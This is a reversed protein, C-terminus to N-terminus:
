TYPQQSNESIRFGFIDRTGPICLFCFVTNLNSQCYQNSWILATTIHKTTGSHPAWVRLRWVLWEPDTHVPGNRRITAWGLSVRVVGPSHSLRPLRTTAQVLRGCGPRSTVVKAPPQMRNPDTARSVYVCLFPDWYRGLPPLPGPIQGGGAGSSAPAAGHALPLHQLTHCLRVPVRSAQHRPGCSVEEPDREETNSCYWFARVCNTCITASSAVLGWFMSVSCFAPSDAGWAKDVQRMQSECDSVESDRVRWPGRGGWGLKREGQGQGRGDRSGDATGAGRLQQGRPKRVQM